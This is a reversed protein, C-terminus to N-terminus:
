QDSVDKNIRSRITIVCAHLYEYFNQQWESIALMRTSALAFLLLVLM